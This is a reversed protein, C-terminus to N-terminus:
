WNSKLLHRQTIDFAELAPSPVDERQDTVKFQFTGEVTKCWYCTGGLEGKADIDTIGFQM